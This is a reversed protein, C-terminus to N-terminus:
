AKRRKLGLLSLLGFAVLTATTPEPVIVIRYYEEITDIEDTHQVLNFDNNVVGGYQSGPNVLNSGPFSGNPVNVGLTNTAGWQGGDDRDGPNDGIQEFPGNNGVGPGSDYADWHEGNQTMYMALKLETGIPQSGFGLLSWKIRFEYNALGGSVNGATWAFDGATGQTNGGTVTHTITQEVNAAGGGGGGNDFYLVGVVYDPQWGDFDVAKVGGYSSHGSNANLQTGGNTDIAIYLNGQDNNGGTDGWSNFPATGALVGLYLYTSDAAWYINNVGGRPGTSFGHDTGDWWHYQSTENFDDSQTTSGGLVPAADPNETFLTWGEGGGITGDITPAAKAAVALMTVTLASVVGLVAKKM